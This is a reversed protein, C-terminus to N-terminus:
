CVGDRREHNKVVLWPFVVVANGIRGIRRPERILRWLWELGLSRMLSPARKQKGTIFDFAGGIGMAVKVSPMKKLNRDIWLDQKPAGYAVFLLTPSAANIRNIIEQEDDISPSGAYTGVIQLASNKQKLIEAAKEAVGEAAGLLFVRESGEACLQILTDTGTVREKIEKSAWLLGAGDPLNLATRNLVDRFPQNKHAEVLMEPNPTTVHRQESGELFSRIRELAQAQTVADLPVGLIVVRQM